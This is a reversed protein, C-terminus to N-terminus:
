WPLFKRRVLLEHVLQPEVCPLFSFLWCSKAPIIANHGVVGRHRPAHKPPPPSRHSPDRARPPPVRRNSSFSGFASCIRCPPAPPRTGMVGHFRGHPAAGQRKPPHRPRSPQSDHSTKKALSAKARQNTPLTPVRGPGQVPSAPGLLTSPQTLHDNHRRECALGPGPPM